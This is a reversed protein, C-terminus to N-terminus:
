VKIRLESINRQMMPLALTPNRIYVSLHEDQKSIEKVLQVGTARAGHYVRTQRCSSTEAEALAGLPAACRQLQGYRFLQSHLAPTLKKNGAASVQM